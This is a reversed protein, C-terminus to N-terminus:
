EPPVMSHTIDSQLIDIAKRDHEDLEKELDALAVEILEVFVKNRTQGCHQSLADIRTFVAKPLQMTVSIGSPEALAPSPSKLLLLLMQLKTPENDRAAHM